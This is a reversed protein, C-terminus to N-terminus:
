AAPDKPTLTASDRAERKDRNDLRLSRIQETTAADLRLNQFRALMEIVKVPIPVGLRSFNEVISILENFGFALSGAIEANLEINSVRELWHCFLLAMITALKRSLGRAGVSSDIEHRLAGAWLGTVMDMGMLVVLIFISERGNVPITMWQAIILAALWKFLAEPSFEWNM